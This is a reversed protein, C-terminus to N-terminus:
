SSEIIRNAWIYDNNREPNIKSIKGGRLPEIKRVDMITCSYIEKQRGTGNGM